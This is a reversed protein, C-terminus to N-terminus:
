QTGFQLNQLGHLTYFLLNGGTGLRAPRAELDVTTM